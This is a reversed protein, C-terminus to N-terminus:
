LTAELRAAEVDTLKTWAGVTRSVVYPDYGDRKFDYLDSSCGDVSDYPGGGVLNLDGIAAMFQRNKAPTSPAGKGEPTTAEPLEIAEWNRSDWAEWEWDDCDWPECRFDNSPNGDPGTPGVKTVDVVDGTWHTLRTGVPPPYHPNLPLGFQHRLTNDAPGVYFLLSTPVFGFSGTSTWGVAATNGYRGVVLAPASSALSRSGRVATGVEIKADM